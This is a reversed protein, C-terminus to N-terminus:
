AFQIEGFSLELSVRPLQNVGQPKSEIRSTRLTRAPDSDPLSITMSCPAGTRMPRFLGASNTKGWSAPMERSCKAMLHSPSVARIRSRFLLLPVQTFPRCTFPATRFSPSSIVAPSTINVTWMSRSCTQAAGGAAATVAGGGDRVGGFSLPCSGRVGISLGGGSAAFGGAPGGGLM